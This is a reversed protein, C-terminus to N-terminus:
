THVFWGPKNHLSCTWNPKGDQLPGQYIFGGNFWFVGDTRPDYHEGLYRKIVFTFSHPAFDQYLHCAKHFGDGNQNAYDHLYRLGGKLQAWMEPGAKRATECVKRFYPRL